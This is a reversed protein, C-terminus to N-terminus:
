NLTARNQGSRANSRFPGDGESTYYGDKIGKFGSDGDVVIQIKKRRESREYQGQIIMASAAAFFLIAAPYSKFLWLIVGIGIILAPEFTGCVLCQDIKRRGIKKWILPKFLHSQGMSDSPIPEKMIHYYEIACIHYVAFLPVIYSLYYLFVCSRLNIPFGAFYIFLEGANYSPDFPSVEDMLQVDLIFVIRILIYLLVIIWLRTLGRLMPDEMKMKWPLFMDMGIKKRTVVIVSLSALCIFYRFFVIISKM